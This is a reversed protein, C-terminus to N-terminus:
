LGEPGAPDRPFRPRCPRGARVRQPLPAARPTPAGRGSVRHLVVLAGVGAMLLLMAGPEPVHLTLIGIHGTRPSGPHMGWRTLGPTVLQINGLGGPTRNDYGTRQLITPFSGGEAYVAVTGTTWLTGKGYKTTTGKKGAVANYWMGTNTYPNTPDFWSRGLAKIMNWSSTWAYTGEHGPVVYKVFGGLRGLLAMAGGFQHAGNHIVMPCLTPGPGCGYYRLISGPGGEAFFAGPANVFTAYIDSQLYNPDLPHFGITTIGFASQPLMISAPSGTGVSLMGSGMVPRGVQLTAPYCYHPAPYTGHTTYRSPDQCNQGLPLAFFVDTDYPYTAGSTVDNGFAHMIFSAQFM